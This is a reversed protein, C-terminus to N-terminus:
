DGKKELVIIERWLRQGIRGYFLNHRKNLLNLDSLNKFSIKEYGKINPDLYLPNKEPFFMPWIMVVKAKPKLVKYLEALAQSYLNDLEAKVAKAEIKGRQPGLYPETCVVDISSQSLYQSVKRVDLEKIEVKSINQSYEKELWKLNNKTDEVAKKSIDFGYLNKLGLSLAENIITGSGCFPDLLKDLGEAGSLNLMMKALKPPIMGSLSDREPRGYDRKSYDIFSQVAITKAVIVTKNNAILLLEVGNKDLLKNHYVSASSLNKEKGQVKVWRSSVAKTRLINKIGIALDKYNVNVNGYLSMAYNFKGKDRNLAEEYILEAIDEKLGKCELETKYEAIKITGGLRDIASKINIEKDSEVLLAEAFLTYEKINFINLIEALSLGPNSGLIFIYKYM